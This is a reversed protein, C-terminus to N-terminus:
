TCNNTHTIVLRNVADVVQFPTAFEKLDGFVAASPKAHDSIQAYCLTIEDHNTNVLIVMQGNLQSTTPLPIGSHAEGVNYTHELITSSINYSMHYLTRCTCRSPQGFLM